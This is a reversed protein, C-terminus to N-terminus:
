STLSPVTLSTEFIPIFFRKECLKDKQSKTDRVIYSTSSIYIYIDKQASCMKSLMTNHEPFVCTVKSRWLCRRSLFHGQQVSPTEEDKVERGAEQRM